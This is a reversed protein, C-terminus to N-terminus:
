GGAAALEDLFAQEDIVRVGLEQARALKTGPSAGAVVTHTRKSVSSSPTGGLGRIREEAEPRTLSDMSGTLVWSQGQWPGGAAARAPEATVGAAGLRGVLDRGEDTGFWRAVNDAVVPGVGEVATLAEASAAALAEISGFHAALLAATHEGVHRIGLANILRSLPVTTRAAISDHLKQASRQAFGELTLLQEVTVGFLDAADAVYGADVLQDIIAEGLGEINMGARSTFHRLLERRQAPCLPNVCRRVVEDPERVLESDCAPCRNPMVWPTAGKARQELIPRIIEPIVDGAKHLLVTDGIRVDKRAVEDENHLTCRRVTSGAVFVPRLHAVPTVAGTRGVQVAIDLVETEVEEPPFKYAIAWRPSRSVKGLEAQLALSSVKIVVGDTEYDLDHRKESWHEIFALVEDVSGAVHRHPNVRFGASGLLDLAEAQTAVGKPPELQYMFTSLGRKATVSPDLQRVAGAAANRPNAYTPKGAEELQANFAAFRAKPLYVEGRVEFEGAFQRPEQMRMPVSRITRANATVDEGEVGNGRTAARMFVGDRYTLSIALGDIKLECVYADVHGAGREARAFFAEVEAPTFANGLSLMQSRHRVKTFSELPAGGVRQTPSDPTQLSPYKTELDVLERFIRDYEADSIQPSDLVYYRHANDELVHRLEAARDRAAKPISPTGRVPKVM